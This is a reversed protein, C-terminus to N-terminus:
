HAIQADAPHEVQKKTHRSPIVLVPCTSASLVKSAVSGFLLRSLGSRGHTSMIILDAHTSEAIQIVIQSPEGMEVRVHPEFGQDRLEGAIRDLYLKMDRFIQEITATGTPDVLTIPEIAYVPILPIPVATVLTIQCGPEVVSTAVDLAASALESGDLPVLVHKLM